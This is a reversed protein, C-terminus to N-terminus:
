SQPHSVVYSSVLQSLLYHTIAAFGSYSLEIGSRMPHFSLALEWLTNEPRWVSLHPFFLILIVGPLTQISSFTGLKGLARSEIELLSPFNFSFCQPLTPPPASPSWTNKDHM